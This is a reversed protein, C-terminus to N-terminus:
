CSVACSCRSHSNLSRHLLPVTVVVAPRRSVPQHALMWGDARNDDPHRHHDHKHRPGDVDGDGGAIVACCHGVAVEEGPAQLGSEVFHECELRLPERNPVRPSWIDGSRTIYEGYSGAAEDFGKDYVTLKREVEMDDFTAMKRSGVVTLRRGKRRSLWSLQARALM